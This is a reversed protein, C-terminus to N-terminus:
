LLLPAPVRFISLPQLLRGITSAIPEPNTRPERNSMDGLGFISFGQRSRQRALRKSFSSGKSKLWRVAQRKLEIFGDVTLADVFVPSQDLGGFKGWLRGVEKTPENRLLATQMYSNLLLPDAGLLAMVVLELVQDICMTTSTAVKAAYKSAYRMAHARNEIQRVNTGAKLHREDGSDVVRYWTESCWTRLTELDGARGFTILHYHPAGRRQFELRWFGAIGPQQRKLAKMFVDLDRKWRRPDPSYEGPYTLTIFSGNEQNRTKAISELFRKRSANSFGSIKGRKGGEPAPQNTRKVKVLDAYVAFMAGDWFHRTAWKKPGDRLISTMREIGRSWSTAFQSQKLWAPKEPEITDNESVNDPPPSNEPAQRHSICCQVLGAIISDKIEADATM